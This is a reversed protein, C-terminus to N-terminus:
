SEVKNTCLLYRQTGHGEGAVDVGAPGVVGSGGHSDVKGCTRRHRRVDLTTM